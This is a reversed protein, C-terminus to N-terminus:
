GCTSPDWVGSSFPGSVSWMPGRHFPMEADMRSALAMWDAEAFRTVLIYTRDSDKIPRNYTINYYVQSMIVYFALFALTMGAINLVSAMKYRRLTTLFNKIAIKM